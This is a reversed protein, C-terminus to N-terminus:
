KEEKIEGYKYNCKQCVLGENKQKYLGGCECYIPQKERRVYMKKPELYPNDLHFMRWLSNKNM